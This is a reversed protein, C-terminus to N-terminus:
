LVVQLRLCLVYWWYLFNFSWISKSPVDLSVRFHMKSWKATQYRLFNYVLFLLIMSVSCEILVFVRSLCTSLFLNKCFMKHVKEALSFDCRLVLLTCVSFIQTGIKVITSIGSVAYYNSLLVLFRVFEPFIVGSIQVFRPGFLPRNRVM